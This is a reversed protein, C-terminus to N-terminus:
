LWARFFMRLPRRERHGAGFEEKVRAKEWHALSFRVHGTEFEERVGVREWRALPFASADLPQSFYQLPQNWVSGKKYGYRFSCVYPVADKRLVGLYSTRVAGLEGWLRVREWRALSIYVAPPDM